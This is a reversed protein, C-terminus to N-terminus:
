HFVPPRQGRWVAIADPVATRHGGSLPPLSDPDIWRADLTESTFVPMADPEVPECQFVYGHLHGPAAGGALVVGTM